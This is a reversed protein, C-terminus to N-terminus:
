KRRAAKAPKGTKAPVEVPKAKAEGQERAKAAKAAAVTAARPAGKLKRPWRKEWEYVFPAAIFDSSYTGTTVGVTLVFAFDWLVKGGFIMLVVTSMLVTGSTIITRQLVQNISKNMTQHFTEKGPVRLNERIRDYVVITDTVSYGVITLLAAVIVLSMEHDILSLAGAAVLVDHLLAVVAGVAFRFEFRMSVYALIMLLSFIISQLAAHRLEKGVKPGVTETRRIEMGPFKAGLETKARDVLTRDATQPIRVLMEEPAGYRQIEIDGLGVEAMASRIQDVEVAHPFRVQLVSGGVFDISYRFGHHAVISGVGIVITLASLAFAWWRIGMFDINTDKLFRM